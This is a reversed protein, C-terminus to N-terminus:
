GVTAVVVSAVILAIGLWQRARLREDFFLVGVLLAVSPSASSVLGVLWAPALTLAVALAALGLSILGAVAAISIAARLRSPSKGNVRDLTSTRARSRAGALLLVMVTVVLESSRRVIVTQIVGGEQLPMKLGVTVLGLSVIAIVAYVPGSTLTRSREARPRGRTYVALISGTTALPVAMWQVLDPREGLLVVALIVKAATSCGTVASVISLPGLRLAEVLFLYGLARLAGLCAVEVFWTSDGIFSLHALAAVVIFGVLSLGVSSAATQITGLRRATVGALVDGGGLGLAAVGASLVGGFM